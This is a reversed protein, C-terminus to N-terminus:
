RFIAVSIVGDGALTAGNILQLGARGTTNQSVSTTLLYYTSASDGLGAVAFNTDALANTFNVLYNGASSRTISSVNFSANITATSGVFRAWAQITNTNSGSDQMQVAVGSTSSAITGGSSTGTLVLSM